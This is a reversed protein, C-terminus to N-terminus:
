AAGLNLDQPDRDLYVKVPDVRQARATQPPICIKPVDQGAAGASEVTDDVGLVYAMCAGVNIDAAKCTAYLEKGEVVVANAASTSLSIALVRLTALKIM